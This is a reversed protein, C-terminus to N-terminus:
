ILDGLLAPQTDPPTAGQDHFDALVAPHDVGHYEDGGPDVAVTM